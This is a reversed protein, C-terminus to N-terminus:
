MVDKGCMVLMHKDDVPPTGLHGIPVTNRCAEIIGTVVIGGYIHM